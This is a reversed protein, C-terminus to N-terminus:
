KKLAAQEIIHSAEFLPGIKALAIRTGLKRKVHQQDQRCLIGNTLEMAMASAFAPM